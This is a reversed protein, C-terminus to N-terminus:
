RVSEEESSLSSIKGMLNYKQFKVDDFVEKNWKKFEKFLKLKKAILFSGYGNQKFQDWWNKILSTYGYAQPSM